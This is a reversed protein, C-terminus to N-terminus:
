NASCRDRTGASVAMSRIEIMRQLVQTNIQQVLPVFDLHTRMCFLNKLFYALDVQKANLRYM